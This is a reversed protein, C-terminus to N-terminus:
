KDKEFQFAGLDPKEEGFDKNSILVVQKREIELETIGLDICPSGALPHFTNENLLPDTDTINSRNIAKEGLEVFDAKGNGYFLNNEIVSNNGFRKFGGSKNNIVVNNIAYIRTGGTAGIENGTITNNYFYVTEHLTTAGNLNEKTNTGEMCGLGVKCNKFVNHHIEFEKGTFIDYSILQIGANISGTIENNGINYKINQDPYDYLRIEIGDDNSNVITNYEVTIKSGTNEGGKRIDLDIGDDKDNKITNFGAYGGGSGEFSIADKNNDFHNHSITVKANIDLPHDGNIITLGSIEVSDHEIAFLTKNGADIITQSIKATDGGLKWESTIIVPKDITIENETYIGPAIVITDNNKASKLAKAITSFDAPVRITNVANNNQNNTNVSCSEIQFITLLSLFIIGILKM